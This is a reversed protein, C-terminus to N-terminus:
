WTWTFGVILNHVARLFVHASHDADLPVEEVRTPPEDLGSWEAYCVRAPVADPDFEVRLDVSELREFAARRFEPPPPQDYHFTSRYALTATGGPQVPRALRIPVTWIGQGADTIPGSARGGLLVDVTLAATDFGYVYTTLPETTAELVQRTEHRVPCRDPGIWHHEALSVTRHPQGLARLPSTAEGRLVTVASTGHLLASLRRADDAPLAFADVFWRLTEASMARGSLARNVRDKIMRPLGTQSDPREGTEYLHHAIAAAVAAQNVAPAITRTLVTSDLDRGDEAARRGLVGVNVGRRVFRMWRDRAPGYTELLHLLYAGAQSVGM